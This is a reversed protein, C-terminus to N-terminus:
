KLDCGYFLSNGCISQVAAWRTVAVNAASEESLQEVYTQVDQILRRFFLIFCNLYGRSVISCIQSICQSNGNIEESCQDMSARRQSYTWTASFVLFCLTLQTVAAETQPCGHRVATNFCCASCAARQSLCSWWSPPLRFHCCLYM